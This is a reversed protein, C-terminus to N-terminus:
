SGAGTTRQYENQGERARNNIQTEWSKEDGAKWGPVAYGNNTGQWSSETAKKTGMVQPKEGCAALAGVSCLLVWGALRM